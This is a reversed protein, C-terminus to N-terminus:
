SVAKADELLRAGIDAFAAFIGVDSLDKLAIGPFGSENTTSLHLGEIAAIQELYGRRVKDSSLLFRNKLYMFAVELKGSSRRIFLCYIKRSDEGVISIYLADQSKTSGVTYGREQAWQVTHEAGRRELEGQMEELTDLWDSVSINPLDRAATSKVRQARTTDGILRPVLTAVGTDASFHAIEIALVEASRMQENLFEVIRSLEEAIVDAVFVMRIRGAKLNSEVQRWFADPDGSGQLFEVIREEPLVGDLECSEEFASVFESIPWYAVGNAAYDLMQAVVERRARTDTARKVEVLVPVAQSDVFLHDLSWRATGGEEGPVGKERKILLLDGDHGASGLLEPFRALLEQLMAESEYPRSELRTLNSEQDVLFIQGAM